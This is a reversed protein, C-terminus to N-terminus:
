KAFWLLIADMAKANLEYAKKEDTTSPPTSPVTYGKRINDMCLIRFFVPLVGFLFILAMLNLHELSLFNKRILWSLYEM